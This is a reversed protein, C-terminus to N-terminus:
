VLPVGCATRAFVYVSTLDARSLNPWWSYETRLAEEMEIFIKRVEHNVSFKTRQWTCFEIESLNAGFQFGVMNGMAMAYQLLHRPADNTYWTTYLDANGKWIGHCARFFGSPAPKDYKYFGLEPTVLTRYHTALQQRQLDRWGRFSMQGLFVASLLEFHNPLRDFETRSIKALTRIASSLDHAYPSQTSFMEQRTFSGALIMKVIHRPVLNAREIGSRSLMENQTLAERDADVLFSNAIWNASDFRYPAPYEWLAGEWSSPQYHRVFQDGGIKAAEAIIMEALVHNEPTNDLLLHKLIQPFAEGSVAVGVSTLTACPLFNGLVDCTEGIVGAELDKEGFMRGYKNRLYRPFEGMFNEGQWGRYQDFAYDMTTQVHKKDIEFEGLEEWIPYMDKGSMDVYRTSLEIYGAGPRTWELSKAALISINECCFSLKAMRAISNHGYKDLWVSLFKKVKAGASFKKVYEADVSLAGLFDLLSRRTEASHNIYSELSNIKFHGLFRPADEDFHKATENLQAALFQPLFSDVFMGRLGRSNKMRSYMSLLVDIVAEPLSHVFFVRSDINTFFSKLARVEIESFKPRYKESTLFERAHALLSDQRSDM